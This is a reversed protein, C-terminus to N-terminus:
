PKRGIGALSFARAPQDLLFDEPGEPRWLPTHVLGPEVLELGDFFRRVQGHTRYQYVSSAVATLRNIQQILEPPADECTPHSIAIYSGPTLANRLTRVAGYAQDDDPLLQLVAVFLVAAPRSLEILRRVDAHQLILDPERADGRIATAHPNGQLIALSHAVAIPDIDVYVIRAAPNAAQAVEHVNGVTPIGSGIDLFQDIGEGILFEVCRRLFARNVWAASRVDPTVQILREAAVRDIEFNHYGGLFYDYIRAASPRDLPIEGPIWGIEDM